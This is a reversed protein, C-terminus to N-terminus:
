LGYASFDRTVLLQSSLQQGLNAKQWGSDPYFYWKLSKEPKAKNPKAKRLM